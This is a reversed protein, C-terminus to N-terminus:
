DPIERGITGAIYRSGNEEDFYYYTILFDGNNLLVSSTYGIDMGIGDDRLVTDQIQDFNNCEGDIIFARLGFPQYRYGYAVLVNGSSLRIGQFPSPSYIKRLVPKSWTRGYDLSECTILPTTNAKGSDCASCKGRRQSRILAVLKGSDTRYINPEFLDYDPLSALVAVKEWTKGLDNTKLLIAQSPEGVQSDGYVPLILAGNGLEACNGRVALFLCGPYRVAVPEDWTKGGDFSRLSYAQDTRGVWTDNIITDSPLIDQIDEKKFVKWMFFTCFITGDKLINLCPDQVGYVFDDYLINVQEDWTEGDDKSTIYVAKSAPDIHTIKGFNKYLTKVFVRQWDPAQRFGVIITGDAKKIVNPFTNYHHDKFIIM